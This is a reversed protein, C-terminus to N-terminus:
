AYQIRSVFGPLESAEHICVFSGMSITRVVLGSVSNQYEHVDHFNKKHCDCCVSYECKCASHGQGCNECSNPWGGAVDGYKLQITEPM